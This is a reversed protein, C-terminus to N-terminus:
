RAASPDLSLTLTGHPPLYGSACRKRDRTCVYYTSPVLRPITSRGPAVSGGAETALWTAMMEAGNRIVIVNEPKEESELILTGGFQTMRINLQKERVVTARGFLVDFAPHVALFDFMITGPPPHLQFRGNGDTIVRPITPGWADRPLAHVDTGVAPAEGATTRGTISTHVANRGGAHAAIYV